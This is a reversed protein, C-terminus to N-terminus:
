GRSTTLIFQQVSEPSNCNKAKAKAVLRKCEQRDSKPAMTRQVSGTKAKHYFINTQSIFLTFVLGVTSWVRSLQHSGVDGMAERKPIVTMPITM